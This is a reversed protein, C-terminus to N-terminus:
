RLQRRFRWASTGVLVLCFALLALLNPYLVEVGTGKLLIGRSIVAFHRVPNILTLPQLWHPMAEIPTTAGSLLVIPPNVFFGMLQAQQQSSVFTAILTGIGIGSLVCLAGAFWFLLFSGRVPVNFVIRAVTLALAIDFTLLIFIPAIKATIIEGAEAPTMLLQEATGVEKEKVMSAAAVISGQIVLLAGILGTVIFWANELGPNYLLAVRALINPQKIAPLMPSAPTPVLMQGGNSTSTNGAVSVSTGVIPSPQQPFTSNLLRRQPEDRLIQQNLAAIIRAAYANAITATNSNVADVILQMEATRGRGRNEAFDVPVVLGADLKGASIGRGMESTSFYYGSVEFARSEVMASVLERSEKSRSEDVVGLRLNTVTPDLAFGFLIVNVTPPVILIMMLRKNRRIQRFEKALLAFWRLNLLHEFLNKM